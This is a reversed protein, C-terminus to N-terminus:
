VKVDPKKQLPDEPSSQTDIKIAHLGQEIFPKLAEYVLQHQKVKSLGKFHPSHLSIALHSPGPTKAQFHGSHEHSFDTIELYTPEFRTQLTAKIAEVISPAHEESNTM